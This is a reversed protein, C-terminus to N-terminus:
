SIIGRSIVGDPTKKNETLLDRALKGFAAGIKAQGQESPHLNDTKFDQLNVDSGNFITYLDVISLFDKGYGQSISWSLVEFIMNQYDKEKQIKQANQYLPDAQLSTATNLIINSSGNNYIETILAQIQAKEAAITQAQAICNAGLVICVLDPMYGGAIAATHKVRAADAKGGSQAYNKNNSTFVNNKHLERITGIVLGSDDSMTGSDEGTTGDSAYGAYGGVGNSPLWNPVSYDDNSTTFVTTPSGQVIFSDGLFLVSKSPIRELKTSLAYADSIRAGLLDSAVSTLSGLSWGGSIIDGWETQSTITTIHLSDIWFEIEDYNSWCYSFEIQGGRQTKDRRLIIGGILFGRKEM